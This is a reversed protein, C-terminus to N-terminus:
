AFEMAMRGGAKMEFLTNEIPTAAAPNTIEVFSITKPTVEPDFKIGYRSQPTSGSATPPSFLLYAPSSSEVRTSASFVFKDESSNYWIYEWKDAKRGLKIAGDSTTGTPVSAIALAERADSTNTMSPSGGEEDFGAAGDTDILMGGDSIAVVFHALDATSTDDVYMDVTDNNTESELTMVDASDLGDILFDKGTLQFELGAAGSGTDVTVAPAAGSENYADDLSIATDTNFGTCTLTDGITSVASGAACASPYSALATWTVSSSSDVTLTDAVENDAWPNTTNVWNGSLTWVGSHTLTSATDLAVDDANVTVGTGAGVTLTVTGTTGGGTLGAGATVGSITGGSNADAAWSLTGSGNTSLVQSSSGDASPLTYTTSGAAAAPALGVYGSTSGSLKLNGTINTTKNVDLEDNTADWLLSVDGSGGEIVLGAGSAPETGSTNDSDVTWTTSTTGTTAISGSVTGTVTLDGAVAVDGELDVSFKSTGAANQVDILKTSAAPDTTPTIVISTGSKTLTLKGSSSSDIDTRVFKSSDLSDIQDANMAYGTATLRQRPTMESDGAVQVSLWMPTNFDVTSMSTVSGLIVNFIGSDAEALSITQEETWVKTGGTSADYLRFTMTYSGTISKGGADTLRGQYNIMWPVAAYVATVRSM